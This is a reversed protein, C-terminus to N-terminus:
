IQGTLTRRIVSSGVATLVALASAIMAIVRTSSGTYPLSEAVIGPNLPSATPKSDGTPKVPTVPTEPDKDSGGQGPRCQVAESYEEGDIEITFVAKEGTDYIYVVEESDAAVQYSTGNLVFSGELDGYNYVTVAVKGSAVDVCEAEYELIAVPNPDPDEDAPYNCGNDYIAKGEENWNLGAYGDFAPIIDGWGRKMVGDYVPGRHSDHKNKDNPKGTDIISSKDVTISVYPNKVSSAAHCITINDDPKAKTVAASGVAGALVLITVAIIRIGKQM